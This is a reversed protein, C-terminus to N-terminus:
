GNPWTEPNKQWSLLTKIANQDILKMEIATKMLTELDTLSQYTTGTSAFRNAAHSFGYSFIALTGAIHGDAEQLAEIAKVSSNGTSILDEIVLYSKGAVVEGEILNKLGHAKPKSRIYVMPLNLSDALIAAHAIAGTAIGAIGYVDEYQQHFLTTFGEKIALRVEPYSLTLRHDCYIPAKWGSAWHYPSDISLTVAKIKLLYAAIKSSRASYM